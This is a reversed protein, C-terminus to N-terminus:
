IGSMSLTAGISFLYIINFVINAIDTIVHLTRKIIVAKINTSEKGSKLVQHYLLTTIAQIM